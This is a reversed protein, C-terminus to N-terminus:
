RHKGVPFLPPSPQHVAVNHHLYYGMLDVEGARSDKSKAAPM